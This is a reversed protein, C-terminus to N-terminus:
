EPAIPAPKARRSKAFFSAAVRAKDSATWGREELQLVGDREAYGLFYGTPHAKHGDETFQYIESGEGIICQTVRPRAMRCASDPRGVVKSKLELLGPASVEIGLESVDPKPVAAMALIAIATIM